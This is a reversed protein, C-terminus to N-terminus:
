DQGATITSYGYDYHQPPWPKVWYRPCSTYPCHLCNWDCTFQFEVPAEQKGGIQELEAVRRELDAIKADRWDVTVSDAYYITGM